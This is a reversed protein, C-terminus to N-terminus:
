CGTDKIKKEHLSLDTDESKDIILLGIHHLLIKKEDTHELEM